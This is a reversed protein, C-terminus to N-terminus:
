TLGQVRHRCLLTGEPSLSPSLDFNPDPAPLFVELTLTTKPLSPCTLHLGPAETCIPLDWKGGGPQGWDWLGELHLPTNETTRLDLSM